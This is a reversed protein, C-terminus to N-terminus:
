DKQSKFLNTIWSKTKGWVNKESVQVIVPAVNKGSLRENALTETEHTTVEIPFISIAIRSNPQITGTLHTEANFLLNAPRIDLIDDQMQYADKMIALFIDRREYNPENYFGNTNRNTHHSITQAIDKKDESQFRIFGTKISTMSFEQLIASYPMESNGLNSLEVGEDSGFNEEQLYKNSGFVVWNKVEKTTNEILIVYPDAYKPKKEQSSFTVEKKKKFFNFLKM